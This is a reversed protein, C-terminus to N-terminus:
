EAAPKRGAMLRERLARAEDLASVPTPGGVAKKADAIKKKASREKEEPTLEPEKGYWLVDTLIDRYRPYDMFGGKGESLM